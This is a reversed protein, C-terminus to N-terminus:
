DEPTASPKVAGSLQALETQQALEAEARRAEGTEIAGLVHIAIDAM